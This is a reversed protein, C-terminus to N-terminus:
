EGAYRANREKIREREREQRNWETHASEAAEACEPCHYTWKGGTRKFSRWGLVQAATWCATFDSAHEPVKKLNRESGPSFHHEHQCELTDCYFVIRNVDPQDWSM